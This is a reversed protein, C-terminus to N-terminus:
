RYPYNIFTAYNQGRKWQVQERFNKHLLTEHNYFMELKSYGLQLVKQSHDDEETEWLLEGAAIAAIVNTGYNNPLETEDSLSVMDIANRYYYLWFDQTPGVYVIRLFNNDATNDGLLQFYSTLTNDFRFDSLYFSCTQNYPLQLEFKFTRNADNPILYIQEVKMGIRAPCLVGTVWTLQTPTKGTYKCVNGQVYVYGTNSFNTTDMNIVVDGIAVDATLSSPLINNFYIKKRLFRLDGGKLLTNNLINKYEGQCIYFQVDNIKPIVKTAEDYTTSDRNENLYSYTAIVIEDLTNAM